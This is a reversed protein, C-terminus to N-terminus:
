GKYDRLGERAWQALNRTGLQFESASEVRLSAVLGIAVTALLCIVVIAWNLAGFETM